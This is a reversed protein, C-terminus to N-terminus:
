IIKFRRKKRLFNTIREKGNEANELLSIMKEWQGILLLNNEVMFNLESKLDEKRFQIAGKKVLFAMTEEGKKELVDIVLNNYGGYNRIKEIGLKEILELKKVTIM